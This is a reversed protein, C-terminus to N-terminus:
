RIELVYLNTLSDPDLGILAQMPLDYPAPPSAPVVAPLAMIGDPPIAPLLFAFWPSQLHFSGWATNLPTELVGSGLFLMVFATGPLGVLKGTISGGASFLGTVYLHTYFEDVGMDAIGHAVRPDGEFDSGPLGPANNDGAARCPSPYTLHFDGGAENVFLPDADINNVGPFGGQVCSHNVTSASGDDVIEDPSDNWLISNTVVPDSSLLNYFGGGATVASNKIFTCHTVTPDSDDWNYMVGGQDHAENSHFITNTVLPSAQYNFLGGGQDASNKFFTSNNVAVVSANAFRSSLGGGQSGASNGSLICDNLTSGASENSIGGGYIAAANTSIICDNLVPQSSGSNHMAGGNGAYNQSLKCATLTPSSAENKMGGGYSQLGGDNGIFHCHTITPSAFYNYMGGGYYGSHTITGTGNYLTFGDLVTDPGEDNFCTVVSGMRDGDIITAEPGMESTLTVAKGLFNIREKYTGARVVITDTDVVSASSLAGQISAFDDPVYWTTQAFLLVPSLFLCAAITILSKM